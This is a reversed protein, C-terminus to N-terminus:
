SVLHKHSLVLGLIFARLQPIVMANFGLPESQLSQLGDLLVDADLNPLWEGEHDLTLKFTYYSVGAVLLPLGVSLTLKVDSFSGKTVSM